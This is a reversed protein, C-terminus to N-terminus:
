WATSPGRDERHFGAVSLGRALALSDMESVAFSPVQLVPFPSGKVELRQLDFPVAFLGEEREFALYGGPVYRPYSGQLPPIKVEGTKLTAVAITWDWYLM